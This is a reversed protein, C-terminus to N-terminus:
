RGESFWSSLLTIAGLGASVGLFGMSAPTHFYNHTLLFLAGLTLFAGILRMAICLSRDKDRDLYQSQNKM